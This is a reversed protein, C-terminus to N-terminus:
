VMELVSVVKGHIKTTNPDVQYKDGDHFLYVHGDPLMRLVGIQYIENIAFLYRGNSVTIENSNIFLLNGSELVTLDADVGVLGALQMFSKDAFFETKPKLHGNEISFIKLSPLRYTALRDEIGIVKGDIYENKKSVGYKMLDVAEGEHGFCLYEMPVGTALHIRILLEFPTTNRTKWTAFTGSSIGLVDGLELRNRVGFMSLLRLIVTDGGDYAPLSNLPIRFQTNQINVFNKM